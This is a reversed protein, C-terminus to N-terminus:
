AMLFFRWLSPRWKIDPVEGNVNSQVMFDIEEFSLVKNERKSLIIDYARM